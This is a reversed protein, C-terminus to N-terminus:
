QQLRDIRSNLRREMREADGGSFRTEIITDIKGRLIAQERELGEIRTQLKPIEGVNDATSIIAATTLTMLGTLVILVYPQWAPLSTQAM